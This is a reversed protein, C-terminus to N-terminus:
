GVYPARTNLRKAGCGHSGPLGLGDKGATDRTCATGLAFRGPNRIHTTFPVTLTVEFEDAHIKRAKSGHASKARYIYKPINPLKTDLEFYVYWPKVSETHYASAPVVIFYNWTTKCHDHSCKTRFDANKGTTANGDSVYVTQLGSTVDVHTGTTVQVRYNTALSPTVTFSYSESAAGSLAFTGASRYSSAGFPKALLTAVDGSTAGAVTGSVTAANLHGASTKYVVLAYGDVKGKVAGPYHPSTASITVSYTASSAAEAPLAGSAALLGGAVAVPAIRRWIKM